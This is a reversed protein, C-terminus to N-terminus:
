NEIFIVWIDMGSSYSLAMNLDNLRIYKYYSPLERKLEPTEIEMKDKEKDKDEKKEEEKKEDKPSESSPSKNTEKLKELELQASKLVAKFIKDNKGILKEFEKGIKPSAKQGLVPDKKVEEISTTPIFFEKLQRYFSKTLNFKIPLIFIEFQEFMKWPAAYLGKAYRDRLRLKMMSTKRDLDMKESEQFPSLVVRINQPDVLDEIRFTHLDIDCKSEMNSGIIHSGELMEIKFVAFYVGSEIM